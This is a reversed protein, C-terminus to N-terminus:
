VSQKKYVWFAGGFRSSSWEDTNIINSYDFKHPLITAQSSNKPPNTPRKAQSIFRDITERTINSRGFPMESRTRKERSRNSRRKNEVLVLNWFSYKAQKEIIGAFSCIWTMSLQLALPARWNENWLGWLDKFIVLFLPM